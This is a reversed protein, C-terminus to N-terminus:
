ETDDEFHEYRNRGHSEDNQEQGLSQDKERVSVVFQEGPISDNLKTQLANQHLSIKELSEAATTVFQVQTQGNSKFVRVETGALVSDKLTIRVERDSGSVQIEDAVQHVIADVEPPVSEGGRQTLVATPRDGLFSRLVADALPLRSEDAPQRHQEHSHDGEHRFDSESQESQQRAPFKGSASPQGDTQRGAEDAASADMLSGFASAAQGLDAKSPASRGRARPVAAQDTLPRNRGRAKMGNKAEILAPVM